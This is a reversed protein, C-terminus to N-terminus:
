ECGVGGVILVEGGLGKGGGVHAMARETIEVLMGFVCEQLSFCLDAATFTGESPKLGLGSPNSDNSSDNSPSLSLQDLTTPLPPNLLNQAGTSTSPPSPTTTTTTTFSSPDNSTTTTPPPSPTSSVFNPLLTYAEVAKLVGSLTLDM